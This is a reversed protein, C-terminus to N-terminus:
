RRPAYTHRDNAGVWHRTRHARRAVRHARANARAGLTLLTNPPVLAVMGVGLNFTQEMEPQPVAALDAILEFIPLPSWTSRDVIADLTPPLVRRWTRPSGGGTVHAFAHAGCEAALALCDRAYIRTPELLEDALTRGGLVRRPPMWRLGTAALVHRVLSYGNSHLGSAGLAILVDGASVRDASLVGDANM